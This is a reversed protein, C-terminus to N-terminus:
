SAQSNRKEAKLHEEVLRLQGVDLSNFRGNWNTKLWMQVKIKLDAIPIGKASDMLRGVLVNKEKRIDKEEQQNGQRQGGNLNRADNPRSSQSQSQQQSQSQNGTMPTQRHEQSQQGGSSGQTGTGETQGTPQQGGSNGNEKGKGNLNELAKQRNVAIYIDEYSSLGSGINGYGGHSLARGVASTSANEIPNTADVGSGGFGIIAREKTKFPQGNKNLGDFSCTMVWSDQIQEAYTDLTYPAAHEKHVDIMQSIRGEVDVYPRITEVYTNGYYSVLGKEKQEPTLEFQKHYVKEKQSLLRIHKHYEAPVTKYVEEIHDHALKRKDFAIKLLLTAEEGAM